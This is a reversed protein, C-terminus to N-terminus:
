PWRAHAKYRHLLPGSGRNMIPLTVLVPNDQCCRQHQRACMHTRHQSGAVPCSDAHTQKGASLRHLKHVSSRATFARQSPNDTNVPTTGLRLTNSTNSSSSSSSGFTTTRSPSATMDGKVYVSTTALLAELESAEAAIFHSQHEEEKLQLFRLRRPTSWYTYYINQFNLIGDCTCFLIAM